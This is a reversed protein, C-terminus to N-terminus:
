QSREHNLTCKSDTNELMERGRSHVSKIHGVNRSANSRAVHRPDRVSSHQSESLDIDYNMRVRVMLLRELQAPYSGATHHQRSIGSPVTTGVYTKFASYHSSTQRDDTLHKLVATARKGKM